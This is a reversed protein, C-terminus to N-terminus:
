PSFLPLIYPHQFSGEPYTQPYHAATKCRSSFYAITRFSVLEPRIFMHGNLQQCVVLRYTELPKAM